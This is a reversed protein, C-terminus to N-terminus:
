AKKRRYIGWRWFRGDSLLIKEVHVAYGRARERKLSKNISDRNDSTAVAYFEYRKSGYERYKPVAGGQKLKIM